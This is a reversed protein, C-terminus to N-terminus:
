AHDGGTSAALSSRNSAISESQLRLYPRLVDFAAGIVVSGINGKKVGNRTIVESVHDDIRRILEAETIGQPENPAGGSAKAIAARANLVVPCERQVGDICDAMNLNHLETWKVFDILASLLTQHSNCAQVIFAANAEAEEDDGCYGIECVPPGDCIGDEDVPFITYGDTDCLQAAVSDFGDGDYGWPLPTHTTASSQSQPQFSDTSDSNTAM